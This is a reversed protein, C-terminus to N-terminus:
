SQCVGSEMITESIDLLDQEKLIKAYEHCKQIPLHCIEAIELMSTKGDCMSIFNMLDRTTSASGNLSLNPYLNRKGLQPECFVNIKPYTNYELALVASELANLGGALGEATVVQELNDLSTHYEIYEGYKTRMISAMPLDVGPACYQREDSGRDLWNYKAYRPDIWHLVHKAVRDSLTNGNRSPLYSYSRNDGVCSINFGAIVNEKLRALNESLYVISGITESVFVFRYSYRRDPLELIRKALFTAVVPGSLENNAMSPHCIYTSLLVEQKTRGPIVLEGYNIHGSTHNANICVEYEGEVLTTRESHAICFGWAEKYYSTVYPIATPQHPLSHLHGSLEGLSMRKMVATSYGVLHLNNVAFDCIKRGDPTKIWAEVVNWEPPVIWDFVKTGSAVEHIKLDPLKKKIMVLSQRTGEGALSRHIPWLERAFKHMELGIAINKKM